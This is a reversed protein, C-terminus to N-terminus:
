FIREVGEPWIRPVTQKTAHSLAASQKILAFIYLYKMGRHESATMAM